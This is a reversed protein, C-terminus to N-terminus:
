PRGGKTYKVIWAPPEPEAAGNVTIRRAKVWRYGWMPGFKSVFTDPTQYAPDRQAEDLTVFRFGKTEFIRLLEDIMDANLRNAHLLM